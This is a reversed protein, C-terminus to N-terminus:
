VAGLLTNTYEALVFSRMQRRSPPYAQPISLTMYDQWVPPRYPRSVTEIARRLGHILKSSIRSRYFFNVAPVFTFTGTTNENERFRKGAPPIRFRKFLSGLFVPSM